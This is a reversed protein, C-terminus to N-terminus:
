KQDARMGLNCGKVPGGQTRGQHTEQLVNERVAHTSKVRGVRHTQFFRQEAEWRRPRREGFWCISWTSYDHWVRSDERLLRREPITAGCKGPANHASPHRWVSTKNLSIKGSNEVYCFNEICFNKLQEICFLDVWALKDVMDLYPIDSYIKFPSGVLYGSLNYPHSLFLTKELPTELSQPRLFQFSPTSM